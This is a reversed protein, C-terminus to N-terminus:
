LRSGSSNYNHTLINDLVIINGNISQISNFEYNGANNSVTNSDQMWILLVEDGVSFGSSNNVLINNQNINNDGIIESRINDSYHTGSNLILNEM